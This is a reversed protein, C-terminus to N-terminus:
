LLWFPFVPDATLEMAKAVAPYLVKAIASRIASDDYVGTLIMRWQGDFSKPELTQGSDCKAAAELRVVDGEHDFISLKFGISIPVLLGATQWRKFHAAIQGTQGDAGPLENVIAPPLGGEGVEARIQEGVRSILEALRQQERALKQWGLNQGASANEYAALAARRRIQEKASAIPDVDSKLPHFDSWSVVELRTAPDKVLCNKALRVFDSPNGSSDIVPKFHLIAQVLKAYPDTYEQFLRKKQLLDHLVAGLQYFTVARYGEKSRKEDGLLFEPSAYQLTGIFVQKEKDTLPEATEIPRIVGLDLLVARSFDPLIAINDPKIDRHVIDLNELFEAASAIQSIIAGINETPVEKLVMGLNPAELLEMVIFHLGVDAAFGGDLIKVLNPHHKGVLSLERKIREDEEKRGFKQIIDPDFVKVAAEEIGKTGKFVLASKGSNIYTTLVWGNLVKGLWKDILQKTKNDM